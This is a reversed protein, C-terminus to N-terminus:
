GEVAQLILAYAYPAGPVTGVHSISTVKPFCLRAFLFLVGAGTGRNEHFTRENVFDVHNNTAPIRDMAKPVEAKM